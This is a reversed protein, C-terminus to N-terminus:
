KARERMAKLEAQLEENRKSLSENTKELDIVDESRPRKSYDIIYGPQKAMADEVAKIIETDTVVLGKETLIRSENAPDFAKGKVMKVDVRSGKTFSSGKMPDFAIEPKRVCITKENLQLLWYKKQELM